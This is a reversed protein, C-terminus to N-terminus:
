AIITTIIRTALHVRLVNLQGLKGGIFILTDAASAHGRGLGCLLPFLFPDNQSAKGISKPVHIRGFIQLEAQVIGKKGAAILLLAGHFALHAVPEGSLVCRGASFINEADGKRQAKRFCLGIKKQTEAGFVADMVAIAVVHDVCPKEAFSTVIVIRNSEIFLKRRDGINGNSVDVTSMQGM